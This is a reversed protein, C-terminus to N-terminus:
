WAVPPEIPPLTNPDAYIGKWPLRRLQGDPARLFLEEGWNATSMGSAIILQGRPSAWLIDPFEDTTLACCIMHQNWSATLKGTRAAFVWVGVQTAGAFNMPTVALGSCLVTQGDSTVVPPGACGDPPFPGKFSSPAEGTPFSLAVTRGAETLEGGPRTTDLYLVALAPRAERYGVALTRSGHLWTLPFQWEPLLGAAPVRQSWTQVAGSAVTYVRVEFVGPMVMVTAM